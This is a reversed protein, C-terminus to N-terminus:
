PAKRQGHDLCIVQRHAVALTADQALKREGNQGALEHQHSAGGARALAGQQTGQRAEDGVGRQGVHLAPHHHVPQVRLFVGQRNQGAVNAQHELVRGSLEEAQPHLLFDSKTGAVQAQGRVLHGSPYFRSEICRSQLVQLTAPHVGERVALFLSQGDGGDQGHGGADQNQVFGGRVQIQDASALHEGSQFAQPALIGCHDDGLM